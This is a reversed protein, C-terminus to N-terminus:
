GRLGLWQRTPLKEEPPCEMRTRRKTALGRGCSPVGQCTRGRGGDEGEAMMRAISRVASDSELRTCHRLGDAGFCHSHWLHPDIARSLPASLRYKAGTADTRAHSINCATHRPFFPKHCYCQAHIRRRRGLRLLRYRRHAITKGAVPGHRNLVEGGNAQMYLFQVNALAWSCSWWDNADEDFPDDGIRRYWWEADYTNRRYDMPWGGALLCQSTFNSCDGGAGFTDFNAFAPNPDNWHRYAYEVAARRNYQVQRQLLQM